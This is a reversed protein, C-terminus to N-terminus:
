ASKKSDEVPSKEDIHGLAFLVYGWVLSSREDGVFRILLGLVLM